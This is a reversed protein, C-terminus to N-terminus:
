ENENICSEIYDKVTCKPVDIVNDYELSMRYENVNIM